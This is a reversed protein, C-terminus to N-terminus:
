QAQSQWVIQGDRGNLRAVTRQSTMVVLSDDGLFGIHNIANGGSDAWWLVQGSQGDLAYLESRDVVIALLDGRRNLCVDNVQTADAIVARFTEQATDARLGAVIVQRKQELQLAMTLVQGDPTAALRSYFYLNVTDDNTHTPGWRSVEGNSLDVSYFGWPLTQVKGFAYNPEFGAAVVLREGEVIRVPFTQFFAIGGQGVGDFVEPPLEFSQKESGPRPPGVSVVLPGRFRRSGSSSPASMARYTTVVQKDPLVGALEWRVTKNWQELWVAEKVSFLGSTALAVVEGDPFCAVDEFYAVIQQRIQGDQLNVLAAEDGVVGLLSEDASVCGHTWYHAGGSGAALRVPASTAAAKVPTAQPARTAASSAPSEGPGSLLALGLLGCPIAAICGVVCVIAIIIVVSKKM